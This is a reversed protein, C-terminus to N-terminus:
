VNGSRASAKLDVIAFRLESTYRAGSADQLWTQDIDPLMESFTLEGESQLSTNLRRIARSLIEILVPSELDLYFPKVEVPSRVFTRRPVGRTKMWKRAGLFRRSEEKEMAFALEETRASWTERHIVVNDILVRPVYRAPQIWSAKNMIFACFLDAFADLIPFCRSDKRDVVVLEGNQERLLLEGIPRGNCGTPAISLPTTALLYDTPLHLGESTRVTTTGSEQTDIIKFRGSARDWKVADMLEERHPHQEVLAAHTLTNKGLHVEGLVYLCDGELVSEPTGALMLDPCYYPVPCVIPIDPFTRQVVENLKWSEFQVPSQHQMVPLVEAWKLKFLKEVQSLSPAEALKPETYLWWDMLSVDRSGQKAAFEEYSQRFVLTFELAMAQVLWRLGRLLLSLAPVAPALLQSSIRLAVDRQCDEYVITRGGYTTGRKRHGEAQTIEMFAAELKQLAACLQGPNGVSGAVQHRLAEMHDLCELARERLDADGIRLLQRRLGKEANIEVPVLLRWVLIGEASKAKLLGRVEDQGLGRFQSHRQLESLIEGPLNRGDCLPLVAAELANLRIAPAQPRHLIGDEILFLPVLRPPIWWDIGELRSLSEAVKDVAWDEFYTNRCKLLSAGPVMEMMPDGAKLTGWTVPGFFGITDNKVCYRQVYSAILEEHHRQHQNRVPRESLEAIPRIANEFAHRNQWIIAEQFGSDSAFNKLVESQGVLCGTFDDEFRAHLHQTKQFSNELAQFMECLGPYQDIARPVKREALRRRANLVTKFQQDDRSKGESTFRDLLTNLARIAVQFEDELAVEASILADAASACVPAALRIVRDAPFGTGRLVFWRWIAWQSPVLCALHPPLGIPSM